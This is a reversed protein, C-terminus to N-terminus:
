IFQIKGLSLTDLRQSSAGIDRSSGTRGPQGAWQGAGAAAGGASRARLVGLRAATAIKLEEMEKDRQKQGGLAARANRLKQGARARAPARVSKEPFIAPISSRQVMPEITAQASEEAQVLAM